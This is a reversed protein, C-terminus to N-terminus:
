RTMRARAEKAVARAEEVDHANGFNYDRALEYADEYQRAELAHRALWLRAKATEDSPGWEQEQEFCMTMYKHTEKTRGLEELITALRFCIHPEPSDIALAKEFLRLADHLKGSKQYCNGLAQWMRRDQPQLATARQYYYLAYLHMDLVEYAQGLGYWARFDHNNIDVARRYLEIAAHLNKLEVFEHGMLTWASLCKKNLTLARRYHMIAKDHEGKMSHYNAVVCCTEARFRDIQTTYQALFALKSKKEMVYLMNLYTDVDHLRMPDAALIEDFLIEAQYYDLGHYAVLFKQVKLFLFNPFLDCLHDIKKAFQPRGAQFEQLFLVEFFLYMVHSKLEAPVTELFATGDDFSSFTSLLEQWASWNWPFVLVSALLRQQALEPCKRGNFIVGLLYDTLPEPQTKQAAEADLVLAALRGDKRAEKELDEASRKEVSMYTAYLRLFRAPGLQPDRVTYAARDFEKTQFYCRARVLAPDVALPAVPELPGPVLGNLAESAWTAAHVLCADQLTLTAGYLSQRLQDPTM